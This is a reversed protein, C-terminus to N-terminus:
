NVAPLARRLIDEQDAAPRILIADGCGTRVLGLVIGKRKCMFVFGVPCGNSPRHPFRQWANEREM